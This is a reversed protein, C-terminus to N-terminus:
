NQLLRSQTHVRRYLDKLFQEDQTLEKAAEGVKKEDENDSDLADITKAKIKVAVDTVAGGIAGLTDSFWSTSKRKYNNDVKQKGSTRRLAPGPSADGKDNM